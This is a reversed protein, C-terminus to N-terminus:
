VGGRGGAVDARSLSPRRAVQGASKDCEHCSRTTCSRRGQRSCLPGVGTGSDRANHHTGSDCRPRRLTRGLMARRAGGEGLGFCETMGTDPDVSSDAEPHSPKGSADKAGDWVDGVAYYGAYLGTLPMM